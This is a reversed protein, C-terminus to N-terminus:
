GLLNNVTSRQLEIGTVALGIKEDVVVDAAMASHSLPIDLYRFVPGIVIGVASQILSGQGCQDM